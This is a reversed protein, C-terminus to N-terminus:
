RGRMMKLFSFGQGAGPGMMGMLDRFIEPLTQGASTALNLWHTISEFATERAAEVEEPTPKPTDTM